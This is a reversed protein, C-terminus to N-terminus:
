SLLRGTPESGSRTFSEKGIDVDIVALSAMAPETNAKM